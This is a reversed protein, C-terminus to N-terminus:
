RSSSSTLAAEFPDTAEGTALPVVFAGTMEEVGGGVVEVGVLPDLVWARVGVTAGGVGVLRDVGEEVLAV